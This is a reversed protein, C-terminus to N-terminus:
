PHLAGDQKRRWVPYPVPRRFRHNHTRTGGSAGFKRAYSLQYLVEKGIFLDRTRIESDAGTNRITLGTTLAMESDILIGPTRIKRDAM